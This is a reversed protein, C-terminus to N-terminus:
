NPGPLSTPGWYSCAQSIGSSAPGVRRSIEFKSGCRMGHRSKRIKRIRTMQLVQHTLTDRREAVAPVQVPDLMSEHQQEGMYTMVDPSDESRRLVTHRVVTYVTCRSIVLRIPLLAQLSRGGALSSDLLPNDTECPDTAAQAVSGSTAQLCPPPPPPPTNGGRSAAGGIM